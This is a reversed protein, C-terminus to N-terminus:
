AGDEIQGRFGAADEGNGYLGGSEGMGDEDLDDERTQPPEQGIKDEEKLREPPTIRPCAM